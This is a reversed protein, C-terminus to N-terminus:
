SMTLNVWTSKNHVYQWINFSIKGEQNKCPLIISITDQDMEVKANELDECKSLEVPLKVNIKKVVGTSISKM